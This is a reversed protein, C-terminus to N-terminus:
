ARRADIQQDALVVVQERPAAGAEIRVADGEEPDRALDIVAIRLDAPRQRDRKAAHGEVDGGGGDARHLAVALHGVHLAAHLEAQVPPPADARLAEALGVDQRQRDAHRTDPAPERHRLEQGNGALRLDREAPAQGDFANTGTMGAREGISRLFASDSFASNVVPLPM